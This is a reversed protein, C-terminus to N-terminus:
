AFKFIRTINRRHYSFRGCTSLKFYQINEYVAIIISNESTIMVRQAAVYYVLECVDPKLKIYTLAVVILATM